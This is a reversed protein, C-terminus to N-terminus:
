SLSVLFGPPFRGHCEQTRPNSILDGTKETHESDGHHTKQWHRILSKHPKEHGALDSPSHDTGATDRPAARDGFPDDGRGVCLEGGDVVSIEICIRLHRLLE